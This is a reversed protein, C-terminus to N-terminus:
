SLPTPLTKRRRKIISLILPLFFQISGTDTGSICLFRLPCMYFVIFYVVVEFPAFILRHPDLFFRLLPYARHRRQYSAYARAARQYRASAFFLRYLFSSRFRSHIVKVRASFLIRHRQPVSLMYRQHHACLFFFPRVPDFVSLDLDLESLVVYRSARYLFRLDRQLVAAQIHPKVLFHVVFHPVVAYVPALDPAYSHKVPLM